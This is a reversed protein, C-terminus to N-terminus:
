VRRGQRRMFAGRPPSKVIMEGLEQMLRDSPFACVRRTRALCFMKFNDPIREGVCLEFTAGFLGFKYSCYGVGQEQTALTAFGNAPPLDTKPPKQLYAVLHADSPFGGQGLLYQRFPEEYVGLSLNPVVHESVSARWIVSSVFLCLMDTDLASSDM